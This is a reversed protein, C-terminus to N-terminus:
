KNSIRKDLIFIGETIKKIPNPNETLYIDSYKPNSIISKDKTKGTKPVTPSIKITNSPAKSSLISLDSLIVIKFAKTPDRKDIINKEKLGLKWNM